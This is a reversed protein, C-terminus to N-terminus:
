PSISENSSQASPARKRADPRKRSLRMNITQVAVAALLAALFGWGAYGRDLGLALIVCFATFAYFGQVMGRLIRVTYRQGFHIHSFVGLVSGMVPFVAFMGSLNPGLAASFVTVLIVLLAAAVMRYVLDSSAAPADVAITDDVPYLRAAILLGVVTFVGAQWANVHVLNLAAVACFYTIWGLCLSWQWGSRRSAWSYAIGFAINSMVGVTSAIAAGKAFESGQELFLFYLIPGTVVPFGALSGAVTAGWRRGALTIAAILVPVLFLKLPLIALM